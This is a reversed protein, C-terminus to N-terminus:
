KALSRRRPSRDSTDCSIRRNILPFALYHKEALDLLAAARYTPPWDDVPPNTVVPMDNAGFAALGTTMYGFFINFDRLGMVSVHGSLNRAIIGFKYFVL